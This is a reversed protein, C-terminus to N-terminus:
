AKAGHLAEERDRPCTCGPGSRSPKATCGDPGHILPSHGCNACSGAEEQGDSLKGAKLDAAIQAELSTKGEEIRRMLQQALRLANEEADVPPSPVVERLSYAWIPNGEDDIVQMLVDVTPM